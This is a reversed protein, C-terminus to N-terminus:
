VPNEMDYAGLVGQKKFDEVIKGSPDISRIVSQLKIIQFKRAVIERAFRKSEPGAKDSLYIARADEFMVAYPNQVTNLEPDEVFVDREITGALLSDAFWHNESLGSVWRCDLDKIFMVGDSDIFFSTPGCTQYDELTKCKIAKM